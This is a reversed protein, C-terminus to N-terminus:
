EGRKRRSSEKIPCIEARGHKAFFDNLAQAHANEMTIGLDAAILRFQRHVEEPVHSGVLRSRIRGVASPAIKGVELSRATRTSGSVDSILAALDAKPAPM